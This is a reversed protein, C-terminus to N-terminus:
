RCWHCGSCQKCAVKKNAQNVVELPFNMRDEKKIIPKKYPKKKTEKM